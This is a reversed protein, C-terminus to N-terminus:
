STEGAAERLKRKAEVGKMAVATRQKTTLMSFGKKVKAKGGISGGIKGGVSGARRFEELITEPLAIKTSNM